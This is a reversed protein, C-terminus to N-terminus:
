IWIIISTYYHPRNRCRLFSHSYRVSFLLKYRTYTKDIAHAMTCLRSLFSLTVYHFKLVSRLDVPISYRRSWPTVVSRFLGQLTNHRVRVFSGPCLLFAMADLTFMKPPRYETKESILCQYFSGTVLDRQWHKKKTELISLNSYFTIQACLFTHQFRFNNVGFGYM